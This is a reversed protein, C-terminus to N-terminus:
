KLIECIRDLEEGSPNGPIWSVIQEGNEYRPIVHIHFHPVTQGAAAGNNQVVNFGAAGLRAKQRIGIEKAAAFLKGLLEADVDTIDQHHERPIVLVHGEAAPGIDLTAICNEDEYVKKSPIDGAAIMCFICDEM